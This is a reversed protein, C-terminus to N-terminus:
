KAQGGKKAQKVFGFPRPKIAKDILPTVINMLLIAFSVGEPYNGFFRILSTIVGCGFGFVLLGWKTNPTTSYDTAMFFAGLFLGGGFLSPLIFAGANGKAAGFILAFLAVTGIFSAPVRWDIIGRVILYVGGLLLALASTEGLSGGINGLFMSLIPLDKAYSVSSRLSSLPTATSVAAVTKLGEPGKLICGFYRFAEGNQWSIPRVFQTMLSAWALLLFIRAAIAPNAFNKGIGGFLMKVFVIAFASGIIPVYFPVSPPLNLALLLGTVMASCDRITQEKKMALNYLYEAGVAAGVSLIEIFLAYFGFFYVSAVVAPALSILVELMIGSVTRKNRVHPSSSVIFKAM